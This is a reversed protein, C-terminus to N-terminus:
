RKLIIEYPLRWLFDLKEFFTFHKQNTKVEQLYSLVDVQKVYNSFQNIYNCQYLYSPNDPSTDLLSTLAESINASKHINWAATISQPGSRYVFHAVRVGKAMSELSISSPTTIIASVNILADVFGGQTHNHTPDIQCEQVLSEDFIRFKYNVGLSKLENITSKILDVLREKESENFYATKATTILVLSANENKEQKINKMGFVRPNKFGVIDGQLKLYSLTSEDACVFARDFFSSAVLVKGATKPNNHANQWEYVGDLIFVVKIKGQLKDVLFSNLYSHELTYVIVSIKNLDILGLLIKIGANYIGDEPKFGFKLFHSKSDLFAIM